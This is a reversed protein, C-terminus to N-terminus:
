AGYRRSRENFQRVIQEFEEGDFDPWLTETFALEAYDMRWLMFNSLRQEGSTRIMLDVPPIDPQYIHRDMSAESIEGEEAAARAADVIEQRGGYNFCIALTGKTNHKTKEEALRMDSIVDDPVNAESGIWRIKIGEEVLEKLENKVVWRLLKLIGEVEDKSRNWNETSFAYVSLYEIELEKVKRLLEKLTKFGQRHGEIAPKGAAQAWRRNGDMIISVHRLQRADTTM